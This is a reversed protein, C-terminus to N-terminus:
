ILAFKHFSFNITIYHLLVNDKAFHLKNNYPQTILLHLNVLLVNEKYICVNLCSFLKIHKRNKEINFNEKNCFFPHLM